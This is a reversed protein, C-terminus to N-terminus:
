TFALADGISVDGYYSEIMDISDKDLEHFQSIFHKDFRERLNHIGWYEGNVFAVVPRYALRAQDLPKIVENALVDQAVGTKYDQGMNRMVLVDFADEDLEPFIEQEIKNEGYQERAYFRLSKQPLGRSGTGHIRMGLDQSLQLDGSEDFLQMHCTREWIQGSEHFNGTGWAGGGQPNNDHTIGPVYIGTDYSFLNLSDTIISVVSVSYRNGLSPHIFFSLNLTHSSPQGAEFSRLRLM